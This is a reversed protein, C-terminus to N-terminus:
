VSVLISKQVLCFTVSTIIHSEWSKIMFLKTAEEKARRAPDSLWSGLQSSVQAAEHPPGTALLLKVLSGSGSGDM